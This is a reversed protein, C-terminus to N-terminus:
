LLELLLVKQTSPIEQSSTIKSLLALRDRQSLEVLTFRFLSAEFAFM